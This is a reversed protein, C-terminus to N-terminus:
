SNKRFHRRRQEAVTEPAAGGSVAPWYPPMSFLMPRVGFSWLRLASRAPRM